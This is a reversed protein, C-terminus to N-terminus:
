LDTFFHFVKSGLWRFIILPTVAFLNKELSPRLVSHAYGKSYGREFVNYIWIKDGSALQGPDVKEKM